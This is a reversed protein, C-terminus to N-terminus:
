WGAIIWEGPTKIEIEMAISALKGALRRFLRARPSSILTV